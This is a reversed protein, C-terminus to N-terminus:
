VFLLWLLLSVRGRPAHVIGVGQDVSHRFISPSCDTRRGKEEKEKGKKEGMKKRSGEVFQKKKETKNGKVFQDGKGNSLIREEEIGGFENPRPPSNRRLDSQCM